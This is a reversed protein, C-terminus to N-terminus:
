HTDGFPVRVEIGYMRPAGIGGASFGLASLGNLAFPHYYENGINNVFFAVDFGKDMVNRWDARFNALGYGPEAGFRNLCSLYLGGPGCNSTNIETTQTSTQYYYSLLLSPRGYNDPLPIDWQISANLQDTPIETFKSDAINIPTIVGGVVLNDTWKDYAPETLAYSLSLTV